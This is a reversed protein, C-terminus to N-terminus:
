LGGGGLPGHEQVELCGPQYLVPQGLSCGDGVRPLARGCVGCLEGGRLIQLYRSSDMVLSSSRKGCFLDWSRRWWSWLDRKCGRRRRSPGLSVYGMYPQVKSKRARKPKPRPVPEREPVPLTTPRRRGAPSLAFTSNGPSLM